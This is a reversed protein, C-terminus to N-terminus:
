VVTQEETEAQNQRGCPAIELGGESEASEEKHSESVPCRLVQEEESCATRQGHGQTRVLGALPSQAASAGGLFQAASPDTLRRGQSGERSTGEEDPLDPLQPVQRRGVEEETQTERLHLVAPAPAEEALLLSRSFDSM